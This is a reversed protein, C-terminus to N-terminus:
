SHEVDLKKLHSFAASMYAICGYDIRSRMLAQYISRLAAGDSGCERGVLCRMLNNVKKCKEKVKDIHQRWTLAEDLFM